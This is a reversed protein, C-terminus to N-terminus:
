LINGWYSHALYIVIMALLITLILLAFDENNM